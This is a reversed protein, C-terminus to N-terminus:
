AALKGWDTKGSQKGPVIWGITQENQTEDRMYGLLTLEYTATVGDPWIHSIIVNKGAKAAEIFATQGVDDAYFRGKLEKDPGDFMGAIYRKSTDELTHQEVTGTKEGVQGIALVGQVPTWTTADKLRFQTQVGAGLVADKPSYVYKAPAPATM